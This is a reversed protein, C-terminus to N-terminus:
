RRDLRITRTRPRGVSARGIPSKKTVKSMSSNRSSRTDKVPARAVPKAISPKRAKPKMTATSSVLSRVPAKTVARKPAEVAKTRPRFIKYAM